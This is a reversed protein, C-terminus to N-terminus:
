ETLLITLPPIWVISGQRKVFEYELEPFFLILNPHIMLWSLFNDNQIMMWSPFQDHHGMIFVLGDWRHFTRM